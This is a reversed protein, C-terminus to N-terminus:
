KRRGALRDVLKDLRSLRRDTGVFTDAFLLGIMVAYLLVIVACGLGVLLYAVVGLVILLPTM